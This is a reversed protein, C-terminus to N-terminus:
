LFQEIQQNEEKNKPVQLPTYSFVVIPASKETHAVSLTKLRSVLVLLLESFSVFPQGKCLHIITDVLVAIMWGSRFYTYM